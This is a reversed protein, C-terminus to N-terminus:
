FEAPNVFDQINIYVMLLILVMFSVLNIANEYNTPIRRRFLIEPLTFLIRGGDVAPIPFLNLLGLSVSIWSFFALTNIGVPTESEAEVERVSTYLDYMGKYGVLRAQEPAISGEILRGPLLVIERIQFYVAQAGMPISEVLSIPITPSNYFIGIAGEGPPPNERPVLSVEGTNDGRLYLLSIEQGLNESISKQLIEASNIEVENISLIIDKAQLGVAAAPSNDDVGVIEIRTPDPVGAQNFIFAYLIVATLLNALPGALLVAIRVWPNAAALGGPVDPDNEGKPRVFGGLPIWNLSFLTGRWTFLGVARPPFGIGFEEVEIGFILAAVFHGIEHIIILLVIAGIFLLINSLDM